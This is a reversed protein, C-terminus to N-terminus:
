RPPPIPQTPPTGATNATPDYNLITRDLRRERAQANLERTEYTEIQNVYAQFAADDEPLRKDCRAPPLHQQEQCWLDFNMSQYHLRGTQAQAAAATLVAGLMAGAWYRTRGM